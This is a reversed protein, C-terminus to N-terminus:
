NNSDLVNDYPNRKVTPNYYIVEFYEPETAFDDPITHEPYNFIQKGTYENYLRGGFESCMIKNDTDYAFKAKKISKIGFLMLFGNLSMSLSDYVKNWYKKCIKLFEEENIPQEKYRYVDYYALEVKSLKRLRVGIGLASITWGGGIYIETHLYRMDILQLLSGMLNSINDYTLVNKIIKMLTHDEDFKGSEELRQYLMGAVNTLYKALNYNGWKDEDGAQLPLLLLVDGFKYTIGLEDNTIVTDKERLMRDWVKKSQLWHRSSRAYLFLIAFITGLIIAITAIIM